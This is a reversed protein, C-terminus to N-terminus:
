KFRPTLKGSACAGVLRGKPINTVRLEPYPRRSLRTIEHQIISLFINNGALALRIFGRRHYPCLAQICGPNACFYPIISDIRRRLNGIDPEHARTNIRRRGSGDPNAPFEAM